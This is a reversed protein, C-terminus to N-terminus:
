LFSELCSSRNVRTEWILFCGNAPTPSVTDELYDIREVAIAERSATAKAFRPPRCLLSVVSEASLVSEYLAIFRTDLKYTTQTLRWGLM